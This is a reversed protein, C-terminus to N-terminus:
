NTLKGYDENLLIEKVAEKLAKPVKSYELKRSLIRYALFEAM